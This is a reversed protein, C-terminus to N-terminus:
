SSQDAKSADQMTKILCKFEADGAVTGNITSLNKESIVSNQSSNVTYVENHSELGQIARTWQKKGKMIIIIKDEKLATEVLDFSFEQSPLRCGINFYKKSHYPMYEVNFLSNAAIKFSDYLKNDKQLGELM